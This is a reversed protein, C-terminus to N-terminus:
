FFVFGRIRALFVQTFIHRCITHDPSQLYLIHLLTFICGVAMVEPSNLEPTIIVGQEVLSTYTALIAPVADGSTRLDVEAKWDAGLWINFLEHVQLGREMAESATGEISSVMMEGYAVRLEVNHWQEALCAATSILPPKYFLKTGIENIKQVAPPADMPDVYEGVLLPRPFARMGAAVLGGQVIRPIRGAHCTEKDYRECHLMLLLMEKFDVAEGREDRYQGEKMMMNCGGPNIARVHITDFMSAPEATYSNQYFYNDPVVLPVKMAAATAACQMAKWLNLNDRQMGLGFATYMTLRPPESGDALTRGDRLRRAAQVRDFNELNPNGLIFNMYVLTDYFPEPDFTIGDTIVNSTVLALCTSGEFGSNVSKLIEERRTKAAGILVIVFPFGIATLGCATTWVDPHLDDPMPVGIVVCEEYGPILKFAECLGEGIQLFWFTKPVRVPSSGTAM